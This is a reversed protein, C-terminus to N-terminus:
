FGPYSFSYKGTQMRHIIEEPNVVVGIEANKNEDVLKGVPTFQKDNIRWVYWNTSVLVPEQGLKRGFDKTGRFIVNIVGVESVRGVKEWNGQKVGLNIICHAYFDIEDNMIDLLTSNSGIQYSKKYVRIVDSNLQTSDNAVYQFYKKNGDNIKACFIDGVKTIVRAM